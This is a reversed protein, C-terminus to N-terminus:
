LPHAIRGSAKGLPGDVKGSFVKTFAVLGAIRRYAAATRTEIKVNHAAGARACNL